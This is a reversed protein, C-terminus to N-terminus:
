RRKRAVLRLEVEKPISRDAVEESELRVEPIREQAFACFRRAALGKNAVRVSEM